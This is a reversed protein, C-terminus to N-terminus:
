DVARGSASQSVRVSRHISRGATRPARTGDAETDAHPDAFLGSLVLTMAFISFHKNATKAAETVAETAIEVPKVIGYAGALSIAHYTDSAQLREVSERLHFNVTRVSISLIGAIMDIAKGNMRLALVEAQRNTVLTQEGSPEFQIAPLERGQVKLCTESAPM